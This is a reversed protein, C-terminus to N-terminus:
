DNRTVKEAIDTRFQCHAWHQCIEEVHKFSLSRADRINEGTSTITMVRGKGTQFFESPANNDEQVSATFVKVHDAQLVSFPIRSPQQSPSNYPYGDAALVVGVSAKQSAEPLSSSDGSMLPLWNRKDSECMVQAEPDGFRVNFEVVSPGKQGWMVGTYLFGTYSLGRKEFEKMLPSLIQQQVMQDANGPLWPVPTYCGMGGTNPGKDGNELRKFDVAFGISSFKNDRVISFHSCERGVLKEEIVITEAAKQMSTFLIELAQDVESREHCVFVGKGAALGSAKIVTSGTRELMSTAERECSARDHVTIYEATPIGASKMIDKAFSKSAELAACEKVPGFVNLNEEIMKNALGQELPAEPGVITLDIGQDKIADILSVFDSDVPCDLIKYLSRTVANGPWVFVENSDIKGFKEALAHERAGSGIILLQM